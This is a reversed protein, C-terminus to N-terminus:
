EDFKLILTHNSGKDPDTVAVTAGSQILQQLTKSLNPRTMQELAPPGPTYLFESDQRLSPKALGLSADAVLQDILQQLTITAPVKMIKKNLHAVCIPCNTKREYVFTNTTVGQGGNYFMYNDINATASTVYKLAENCCGASVVANTSAIIPIIHKVVGQTLQFTVGEIHHEAARKLAKECIWKMDEESDTDVARDPFARPWEILFAYQICHGPNRPTTAVTCSVHAPNDDKPLTDVSCEYCATTGPLILRAQGKFEESGGDILPIVTTPDVVGDDDLEVFSMLKNNIWRRAVVSDLGCVVLDFSRYFGPFEDEIKEIRGFHATVKVGAVRNM